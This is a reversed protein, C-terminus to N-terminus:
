LRAEWQLFCPPSIAQERNRKAALALKEEQEMQTSAGIFNDLLVAVSVQLALSIRHTLPSAIHSLGDGRSAPPLYLPPFRGAAGRKKPTEEAGAHSRQKPKPSM